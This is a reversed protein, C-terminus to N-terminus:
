KGVRTAMAAVNIEGQLLCHVDGGVWVQGQADQRLHVRGSRGLRSGQAAVYHPPLEGKSILWQALSANLSGTVPDELVGVLAVFARVEIAADHGAAQPGAVGVKVGLRKLAAHDPELALVTAAADLWLALWRPGNDLWASARLQAPALGLAM